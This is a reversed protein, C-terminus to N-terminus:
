FSLVVLQLLNAVEQVYHDVSQVLLTWPHARSFDTEAFPGHHLSWNDTHTEVIRSEIDDEMALGALENADIPPVFNPVANRILLPKQQWYDKLFTDTDLALKMSM